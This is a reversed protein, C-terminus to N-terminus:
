LGMEIDTEIEAVRKRLEDIAADPSVIMSIQTELETVRKRLEDIEATPAPRFDVEVEALRKDLGDILGVPSPVAALDVFLNGDEMQLADIDNEATLMRLTLATLDASTSGSTNSLGQLFQAFFAYWPTAMMGTKADIVPVRPPPILITAM